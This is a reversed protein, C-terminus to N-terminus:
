RGFELVDTGANSGSVNKLSLTGSSASVIDWDESIEEFNGGGSLLLVLKLQSGDQIVKWTGSSVQAGSKTILASGNSQFTFFHNQFVSTRNITEKVYSTVSWQGQIKLATGAVPDQTSLDDDSDCGSLFLSVTM